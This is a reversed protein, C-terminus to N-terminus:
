PSWNGSPVVGKVQRELSGNKAAEALAPQIRDYDSRQFGAKELYDRALLEPDPRVISAAKKADQKAQDYRAMEVAASMDPGGFQGASGFQGANGVQMQIPARVAATKLDQKVRAEREAVMRGLEYSLAAALDAESTLKKVLGDTVCVMKRDVHFLEPTESGFAAFHPNLGMQKNAAVVKRGVADVRVCISEDAGPMTVKAARVAPATGDFFPTVQETKQGPLEFDVCATCVLPLLLLLPRSRRM